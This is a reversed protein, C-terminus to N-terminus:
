NEYNAIEIAKTEAFYVDYWILFVYVTWIFRAHNEKQTYHSELYNLLMDCDFFQKAADSNFTKKVREYVTQERFWYRIPVPFGVKERNVWADPLCEEAALRLAVKSNKGNIRQKKPLTSALKAVEKDLFPVRLELSHAMSMKDAKLLIDGPLWLNLDLHQMKTLDDKDTVENYFPMVISKVDPGNKYHDTLLKTAESESFIRAQGIFREEVPTAAKIMFNTTRNAPLIKAFHGMLTRLMLPMKEYTNFLFSNQYWAYGAFLEDAGEGSLVVTVHESALESLFFLPIASPNSQPEDMHYLIEPLRDFSEQATIIRKHNEIGLKESLEKALCTEDYMSEYADFGVTFTKDPKLLATIYSSDVGGSLFAGVKVDSIKHYSVSEHMAKQIKLVNQSLSLKNPEYHNQWYRETTIQDNEIWMCHGPRLKYVGEFFTEDLVSYQFTLYPKLANKNFTKCFKPHKIIAKIESGFIITHDLTQQTYYLPKIGFFDRALFLGKKVTDYICFAFMGRLKQLIAKGYAHYGHLIVESDTHSKFIYGKEILESRLEAFNYIEGNFVLILSGEENIMPQKAEDSLDIISLRRFGLAVQADIFHGESDPGRHHLTELMNLLVNSSDLMLNTNTFGVFGCM